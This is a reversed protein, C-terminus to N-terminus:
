VNFVFGYRLRHAFLDLVSRRQVGGLARLDHLFELLFGAGAIKLRLPQLVHDVDDAEQEGQVMEGIRGADPGQLHDVDLVVGDM